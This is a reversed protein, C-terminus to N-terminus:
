SQRLSAVKSSSQTVCKTEGPNHGIPREAGRKHRREGNRRQARGSAYAQLNAIPLALQWLDLTRLGTNGLRNASRSAPADLIIKRNKTSACLFGNSGRATKIPKMLNHCNQVTTLSNSNNLIRANWRQFQWRSSTDSVGLERDRLRHGQSAQGRSPRQIVGTNRSLGTHNRTVRIFPM